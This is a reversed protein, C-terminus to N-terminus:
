SPTMQSGSPLDGSVFKELLSLLLPKSDNAGHIKSDEALKVRPRQDVAGLGSEPM